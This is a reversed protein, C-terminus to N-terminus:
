QKIGLIERRLKDSVDMDTIYVNATRIPIPLEKGKANKRVVGEVTLMCRKMNVNGVKGTKGKNSGVM